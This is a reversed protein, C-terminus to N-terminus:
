YVVPLTKYESQVSPITDLGEDLKVLKAGAAIGEAHLYLWGAVAACPGFREDFRWM